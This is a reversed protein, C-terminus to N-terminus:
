KGRLIQLRDELHRRTLSPWGAHDRAKLDKNADEEGEGNQLAIQRKRAELQWLESVEPLTQVIIKKMDEASQSPRIAISFTTFSANGQWFMSRVLGIPYHHEDGNDPTIVIRGLKLLSKQEDTLEDVAEQITPIADKIDAYAQITVNEKNNYVVDEWIHIQRVGIKQALEPTLTEQEMSEHTRLIHVANTIRHKMKEHTHETCVTVDGRNNWGDRQMHLGHYNENGSFYIIRGEIMKRIEPALSPIAKELESLAVNCEAFREPTINWAFKPLQFDIRELHLKRAMASARQELMKKKTDPSNEIGEAIKRELEKAQEQSTLWKERFERKSRELYEADSEIKPIDKTSVPTTEQKIRAAGLLAFDQEPTIFGASLALQTLQSLDAKDRLMERTWDLMARENWDHKGEIQEADVSKMKRFHEMTYEGSAAFEDANRILHGLAYTMRSLNIKFKDVSKGGNKLVAEVIEEMNMAGPLYRSEVDTGRLKQLFKALEKGGADLQNEGANEPSSNEKPQGGTAKWILRNERSFVVTVWHFTKQLANM